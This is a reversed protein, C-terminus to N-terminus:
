TKALDKQRLVTAITSPYYGSARDEPRSSTNGYTLGPSISLKWCASSRVSRSFCGIGGHGLSLVRGYERGSLVGIGAFLAAILYFLLIIGGVALGFYIWPWDINPDSWWSREQFALIIIATLGILAFFATIFEWIAILVLVDPKKM